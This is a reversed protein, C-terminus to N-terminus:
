RRSCAGSLADKPTARLDPAPRSSKRGARSRTPPTPDTSRVTGSPWTSSWAAPQEDPSHGRRRTAARFRANLSEIANTPHIIKRVEIPFGLFPM